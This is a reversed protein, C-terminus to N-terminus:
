DFDEYREVAKKYTEEASKEAQLAKAADERAAVAAKQREGNQAAFKAASFGEFPILGKSEALLAKRYELETDAAEVDREASTKEAAVRAKKAKLWTVKAQV